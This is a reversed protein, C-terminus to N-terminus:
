READHLGLTLQCQRVLLEELQLLYAESYREVGLRKLMAKRYNAHAFIPMKMAINHLFAVEDSMAPDILRFFRTMGDMGPDLVEERFLEYLADDRQLLQYIVLSHWDPRDSRFMDDIEQRILEQVARGLEERTPADGLGDIIEAEHVTSCCGIADRVVAEFLGNKGGFHYHISGINEGSAEAVARTSVNDMGLEAALEGAAQILKDKTAEAAAYKPM